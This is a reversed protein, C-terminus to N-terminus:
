IQFIRALLTRAVNCRQFTAVNASIPQVDYSKLTAVNLSLEGGIKKKLDGCLKWIGYKKGSICLFCLILYVVIFVSIVLHFSGFVRDLTPIHHTNQASMVGGFKAEQKDGLM